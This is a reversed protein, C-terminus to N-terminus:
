FNYMNKPAKIALKKEILGRYDFHHKNLWDVGMHGEYLMTTRTIQFTYGNEGTRKNKTYIKVFGKETKKCGTICYTDDLLFKVKGYEVMEDETMDTLPRLYPKVDEVAVYFTDSGSNTKVNVLAKIGFCPDDFEIGKLTADETINNAIDYATCVRVVVDHGLRGCLDNALVQKEYEEM